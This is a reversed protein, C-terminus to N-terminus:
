PSSPQRSSSATSLCEVLLNALEDASGINRPQGSVGRSAAGSGVKTAVVSEGEYASRGLHTGRYEVLGLSPALAAASSVCVRVGPHERAGGGAAEQCVADIELGGVRGKAKMGVFRDPTHPLAVTIVEDFGEIRIMGRRVDEVILRVSAPQPRTSSSITLEVWDGQKADRVPM